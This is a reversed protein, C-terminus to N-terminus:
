FGGGLIGSPLNLGLGVSFALYIASSILLAFSIDFLPRRSGFGKAVFWFLMAAAIIWGLTELTLAFLLFGGASWLVASWDTFTRYTRASTETPHEPSRLYHLALLVALVYGAVMLIGPFFKPGPFDTGEGVDMTLIGILLYTSFLVMLLSLLLGSRGDRWSTRVALTADSTGATEPRQTEAMGASPPVPNSM